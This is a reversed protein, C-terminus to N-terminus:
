AAGKPKEAAAIERERALHSRWQRVFKGIATDNHQQGINEALSAVAEYLDDSGPAPMPELAPDAPKANANTPEVSTAPEVPKAAEVLDVM